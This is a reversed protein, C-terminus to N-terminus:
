PEGLSYARWRHGRVLRKLNRTHKLTELVEHRLSELRTQPTMPYVRVELDKVFGCLEPSRSLAHFAQAIRESDRSRVWEWIM